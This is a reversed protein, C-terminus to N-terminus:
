LELYIDAVKHHGAECPLVTFGYRHYWELLNPNKRYDEEVVFGRICKMGKARALAITEKLLVTGLGRRMYPEKRWKWWVWRPVFRWTKKRSLMPRELISLDAIWLTSSVDLQYKVWGVLLDAGWLPRFLNVM